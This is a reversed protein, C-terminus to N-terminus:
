IYIYIYIYIYEIYIYEIYIYIRYIYINQIIFVWTYDKACIFPMMATIASSIFIGLNFTNAAGIREALTVQVLQGAAYGIFFSSLIYGSADNSIIYIFM